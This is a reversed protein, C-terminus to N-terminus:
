FHRLISYLFVHLFMQNKCSKKLDFRAVYTDFTIHKQLGMKALIKAGNQLAKPLSKASGAGGPRGKPSM